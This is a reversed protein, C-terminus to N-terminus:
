WEYAKTWFHKEHFCSIFFNIKPFVIFRDTISNESWKPVNKFSFLFSFHQKNKMKEGSKEDDDWTVGDEDGVEWTRMDEWRRMREMENLRWIIGRM